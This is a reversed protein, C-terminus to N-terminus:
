SNFLMKWSNIDGKVGFKKKETFPINSDGRLWAQAYELLIM